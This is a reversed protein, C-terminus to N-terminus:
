NSTIQARRKKQPVITYGIVDLARIETSTVALFPTGSFNTFADQVQSPSHTIWDGYDGGNNCNNFANLNTNGGDISFFASSAVCPNAASPNTAFSRTSPSAWRFLDEPSPTSSSPLASGLGLVEDMEHEVVSLLAGHANALTVNLGICGSGTFNQCPSGFTVEPTNLGIARGNASTLEISGGNVPNGTSDPLTAFATTDDTSASNNMLATRYMSYPVTYIPTTSAGLGSSMEYFEINVTAPNSFTSQYFAVANNIVSQTSADINANFTAHIVLGASSDSTRLTVPLSNSLGSATGQPDADLRSTAFHAFGPVYESQAQLGGSSVGSQVIASITLVLFPLLRRATAWPMPRYMM